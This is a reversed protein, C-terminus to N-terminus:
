PHPYKLDEYNCSRCTIFKKHGGPDGRKIIPINMCLYIDSDMVVQMLLSANYLKSRSSSIAAYSSRLDRLDHRGAEKDGWKEKEGLIQIM